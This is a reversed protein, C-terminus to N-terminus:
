EYRERTAVTVRTAGRVAVLRRGDRVFRMGDLVLTENRPPLPGAVTRNGRTTAVRFGEDVARVSVNRGDVVPSANAPPATYVTRTLEGHHLRVRYTANGGVATWGTRNVAVRDRWGVGGVRVTVQGDFALRGKSVATLWVNRERSRVIVGSANVSTSEGFAEVDVVSVMGDEVDEAYTVEYDRVQVPDGPLPDDSATALNVVVAPGALAGLVLLLVTAYAQWRPLRRLSEGAPGDGLLPRSSAGVAGAVVAALLVVLALGAARYLVFTDNGRFWYVAWLSQAVGFLLVAGFVRRGSPRETSRIRVYWLGLVVGFLLGLAHGQIAVEAWWPTSFSPEATAELVPDQLSALALRGVRAALLALVARVPAVVLAAGAFAFVVGSFGIVPGVSFAGTLLGVAVAVAPVVLVRAYPNTRFSGFSSTGRRRPYHGWAYEVVPALALTGVLNGLLHGPGLHAFPAAVVGLPYFYSWARFPITTPAGWRAYGGQLFLYVALVLAVTLLTGWPLGLLFRRRLARGVNGRGDLRRLVALGVLTSLVLGVRHLADPGVAGGSSLAFAGPV